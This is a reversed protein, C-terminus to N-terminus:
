GQTRVSLLLPVRDSDEAPAYRHVEASYFMLSEGAILRHWVGGVEVRAIGRLVFVFEVGPHSRPESVNHVELLTPFIKGTPIRSQLRNIAVAIQADKVLAERIHAELPEDQNGLPGGALDTLAHWRDDARHHAIATSPDHVNPNALRDIHLGLAECVRLLTIPQTGHGAELRVISNKGVGARTAFARISYGQQVRLRRVRAGILPLGVASILDAVRELRQVLKADAGPM